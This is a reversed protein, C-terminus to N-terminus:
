ALGLKDVSDILQTGVDLSEAPADVELDFGDWSEIYPLAGSGQAFQDRRLGGKSNFLPAETAFAVAAVHHERGEFALVDCQRESHSGVGGPVGVDRGAPQEYVLEIVRDRTRWNDIVSDNEM